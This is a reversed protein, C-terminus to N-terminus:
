SVQLVSFKYKLPFRSGVFPTPALLDTPPGSSFLIPDNITRPIRITSDIAKGGSAKMMTGNMMMDMSMPNVIFDIAPEM